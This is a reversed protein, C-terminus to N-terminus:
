AVVAELPRGIALLEIDALGHTAPAGGGFTDLTEAKGALCREIDLLDFQGFGAEFEAGGQRHGIQFLGLNTNLGEVILIRVLISTALEVLFGDGDGLGGVRTVLCEADVQLGQLRALDVVDVDLIQFGFVAAFEVVLVEVVGRITQVLGAM